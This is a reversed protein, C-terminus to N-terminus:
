QHEESESDGRPDPDAQEADVRDHERDERDVPDAGDGPDRDVVEKEENSDEKNFKYYIDCVDVAVNAGVLYAHDDAIVCWKVMPNEACWEMADEVVEDVTKLRHTKDYIFRGIFHLLEIVLYGVATGIIIAISLGIILGLLYPITM